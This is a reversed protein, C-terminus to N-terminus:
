PGGGRHILGVVFEYRKPEFDKWTQIYSYRPMLIIGLEETIFYLIGCSINVGLLGRDEYHSLDGVKTELTLTHWYIGVGLYCFKKFFLFNLGTYLDSFSYSEADPWQWGMDGKVSKAFTHGVDIFVISLNGYFGNPHLGFLVGVSPAIPKYEYYYIHHTWKSFGSYIGEFPFLTLVAYLIISM